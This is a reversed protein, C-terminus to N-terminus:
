DTRQRFINNFNSYNFSAPEHKIQRQQQLELFDKVQKFTKM